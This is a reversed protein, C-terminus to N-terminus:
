ELPPAFQPITGDCCARVNELLEGDEREIQERLDEASDNLETQDYLSPSNRSSRVSFTGFGSAPRFLHSLRSMSGQRVVKEGPRKNSLSSVNRAPSSGRTTRTNYSSLSEAGRVSSAVGSNYIPNFDRVDEPMLGNEEDGLEGGTRLLLYSLAQSM